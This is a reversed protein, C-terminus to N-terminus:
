GPGGKQGGAPLPYYFETGAEDRSLIAYPGFFRVLRFTTRIYETVRANDGPHVLSLAQQYDWVVYRVTELQHVVEEQEAPTAMGEFFHNFRTPNPRDALYYFGPIVPYAFIPEGPATREQLYVVVSHIARAADTEVWVNARPLDISALGGHRVAYLFVTRDHTIPSDAVAPLLVLSVGLVVRAAGSDRLRPTRRLLCRYWAYLVDAGAVLLITVSWALHAVDMRPYLTLLLAAGAALYWLRLLDTTAVVGGRRRLRWALLAQAPWFALVPLYM